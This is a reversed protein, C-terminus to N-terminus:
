VVAPSAQGHHDGEANGFQASEEKRQKFVRQETAEETETPGKGDCADLWQEDSDSDVGGQQKERSVVTTISLDRETGRIPM